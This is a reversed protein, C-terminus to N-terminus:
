KTGKMLKYLEILFNFDCDAILRKINVPKDQSHTYATRIAKLTQRVTDKRRKLQLGIDAVTLPEAYLAWMQKEESSSFKHTRLIDKRLMMEREGLERALLQTQTGPRNRAVRGGKGEERVRNGVDLPGLGEDELISEFYQQQKAICLKAIQNTTLTHPKKKM